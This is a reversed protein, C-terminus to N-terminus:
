AEYISRAHADLLAHIQFYEGQIPELLGQNVLKKVFPIPDSVGWYEEIDELDFVAPKHAFTGLTRFYRRTQEDLCDTSKRLLAAITPSTADAVESHEALLKTGEKLEALLDNIGWVYQMERNLLRGAVQVALPLYELSEILELCEEHYSNTLGPALYELLDLAEKETVGDLKYANSPTPVLAEAIETSRTTVLTACGKGGVRFYTADKVHLVDDIILLVRKDHLLANIQAQLGDINKSADSENRLGLARAWTMLKDFIDPEKDLSIWLVGNPFAHLIEPDHALISAITTKGAGPWGRIATIVQAYISSSITTLRAKLEVVEDKREIIGIPLPLVLFVQFERLDSQTNLRLSVTGFISNIEDSGLAAYGGSFLVDNAEEANLIRKYDKLVRIINLLLKRESAAIEASGKEWNHVTSKSPYNETGMLAAIEKAFTELGLNGEDDSFEIRQRFTKLKRGFPVSM